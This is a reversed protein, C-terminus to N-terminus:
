PEPPLEELFDTPVWGQRGRSDEVLRWLRGDPGRQEPGLVQVVSREALAAIAPSSTAPESRLNAGLGGTNAIRARLPAPTPTPMAITAVPSPSPTPRPLTPSPSPSVVAVAPTAPLTATGRETLRAANLYALGGVLILLAAIIALSVAGWWRASLGRQATPLFSRHCWECSTADRANRGGCGPCYVMM